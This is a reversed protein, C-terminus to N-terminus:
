QSSSLKSLDEYSKRQHEKTNTQKKRKVIKPKKLSSKDSMDNM